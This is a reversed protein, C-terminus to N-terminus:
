AVGLHPLIFVLTLVALGLWGLSIRTSPGFAAIAFLVLAVFLLILTVM